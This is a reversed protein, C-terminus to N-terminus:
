RELVYWLTQYTEDFHFNWADQNRSAPVERGRAGRPDLAWARVPDNGPLSLDARLGLALVPGSGWRPGVTTRKEDWGLNTNEARAALVLLLRRSEAV